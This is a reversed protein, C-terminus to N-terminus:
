CCSYIADDYYSSQRNTVDVYTIIHEMGNINIQPEMQFEGSRFGRLLLNFICVGNSESNEM